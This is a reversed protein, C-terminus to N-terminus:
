LIQFFLDGFIAVDLADLFDAVRGYHLLDFFSALFLLLFHEWLSWFSLNDELIPFCRLLVGRHDLFPHFVSLLDAVAVPFILIFTLRLLNQQGLLLQLLEEM